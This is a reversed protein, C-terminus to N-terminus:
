PAGNAPYAVAQQRVVLTTGAITRWGRHFFAQQRHPRARKAHQEQGFGQARILNPLEGILQGVALPFRRTVRVPKGVPGHRSAAKVQTVGLHALAGRRSQPPHPQQGAATIRVRGRSHGPQNTGGSIQGLKRVRDGGGALGCGAQRLEQGIRTRGRGPTVGPKVGRKM